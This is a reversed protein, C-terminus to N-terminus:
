LASSSGLRRALWDQVGRWNDNRKLSEFQSGDGALSLPSRKDFGALTALMRTLDRVNRGMPGEIGLQQYFLDQSPWQPVLGRSPRFGYVNNFAAPNRLSGGMDSGDAVPLMHTALAVAAGGSSGGAVSARTMPTEPLETYRTIPKHVWVSSRRTPRASSSQVPVVFVSQWCATSGESDRQGHIPSGSTSVIGKVPSLDKIAQPIGHLWGLYQGAALQRDREDAQALLQDHAQLAVIANFVPNVEDIRALYATMVERCSLQRKYIAQSLEYASLAVVAGPPTM